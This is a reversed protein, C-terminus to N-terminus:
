LPTGESKLRKKLPIGLSTGDFDWEFFSMLAILVVLFFGGLQIMVPLKNQNVIQTTVGSIYNVMSTTRNDMSRLDARLEKLDGRLAELQRLIDEFESDSM